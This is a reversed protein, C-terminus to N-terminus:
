VKTLAAAPTAGGPARRAGKRRSRTLWLVSLVVSASVVTITLGLAAILPFSGNNYLDLLMYGATPTATSALLVSITLDGLAFVFMMAWGSAIGPLMLPLSIKSLTRAGSAGSMRSAEVLSGHVQTVASGAAISGQPLYVLVYGLLLIVLTGSLSFPPGAYALLLAVGVVLHSLGSPLKVVGDVLAALPSPNERNNLSLIWAIAMGITATLLGLLLSNILSQQTTPNGFFVQHFNAFSMSDFQYHASWFSQLSVMALAVVPLVVTVIVFLAIAIRAPVKWAGLRVRASTQGKGGVTAGRARRSIRSQLMWVLAIATMMFSSLVVAEATRPPYQNHLLDLITTSLVPINASNGVVSPVSFLALGMTVVLLAASALSPTIAPLTVRFLTMLPGAGSIRSAQELAPDLNRLAAAVVVYVFPTLEIAYLAILGPWSFINLPGESASSGALTRLFDNILGARPSLLMVWGIASAIPPVLLGLVPLVSSFWGMHADTRENLWALVSGMILAGLGGCAVVILTNLLVESLGPLALAAALPNATADTGSFLAAVLRWIPYVLSAVVIVGLVGALIGM